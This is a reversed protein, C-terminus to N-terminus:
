HSLSPDIDPLSHERSERLFSQKSVGREEHYHDWYKYWNAVIEELEKLKEDLDPLLAAERPTIAIPDHLPVLPIM